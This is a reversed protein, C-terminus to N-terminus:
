HCSAIFSLSDYITVGYEKNLKEGLLICINLKEILCYVYVHYILDMFVQVTTNRLYWIRLTVLLM